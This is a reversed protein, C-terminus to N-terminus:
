RPLTEKAAALSDSGSTMRASKSDEGGRTWEEVRRTRRLGPYLVTAQDLGLVPSQSRAADM